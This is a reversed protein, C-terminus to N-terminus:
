AKDLAIFDYEGVGQILLFRCLGGAGNRPQHATGPDVRGSQGAQLRIPEQVVGSVVDRLEVVLKGEICYYVDSVQSHHHWPIREGEALTFEKVFMDKGAMVVKRKQVTFPTKQEMNAYAVTNKENFLQPCDLM